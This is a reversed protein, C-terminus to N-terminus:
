IIFLLYIYISSQLFIILIWINIINIIRKKDAKKNKKKDKTTELFSVNSSFTIAHTNRADSEVCRNIM